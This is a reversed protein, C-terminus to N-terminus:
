GSVLTLMPMEPGNFLRFGGPNNGLGRSVVLTAGQVQYVGADYRPFLGRGADALGGVLPLRVLGGHGHGSLILDAGLPGWVQPETNRHYLLITFRDQPMGAFVSEPSAQDAPGNPDQSGALTISAGQRELTVWRHDLLIAGAEEMQAWVERRGEVTWEHNGSVYYVPAMRCLSRIAPIVQELHTDRDFLDGSIAILDAGAAARALTQGGDELFAGHLDTILAIKLGSFAEPLGPCSLAYATVQIRGAGLLDLVVALAAATLAARSWQKWSGM